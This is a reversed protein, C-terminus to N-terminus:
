AIVMQKLKSRWTKFELADDPLVPSLNTHAFMKRYQLACQERGKLTCLAIEMLTSM